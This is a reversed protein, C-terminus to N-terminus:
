STGPGREFTQLGREENVGMMGVKRDMPLPCVDHVGVDAEVEM